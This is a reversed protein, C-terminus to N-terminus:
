MGARLQQNEAVLQQVLGELDMQRRELQSQALKAARAESANRALLEKNAREAQVMRKRLAKVDEAASYDQQSLHSWADWSPASPRRRPPLHTPQHFPIRFLVALKCRSTCLCLEKM